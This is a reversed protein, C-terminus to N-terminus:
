KGSKDSINDFNLTLPSDNPIARSPYFISLIDQCLVNYGWLRNGKAFYNIYDQTTATAANFDAQYIKCKGNEENFFFDTLESASRFTVTTGKSCSTLSTTIAITIGGLIGITSMAKILNLKKM